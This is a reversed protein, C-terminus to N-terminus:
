KGYHKLSREIQNIAIIEMKNKKYSSNNLASNNTFLNNKTKKDSVPREKLKNKINKLEQFSKVMRNNNNLSNKLNNSKQELLNRYRKIRNMNRTIGNKSSYNVINIIDSNKEFNEQINNSSKNIIQSNGNFSNNKNNQFGLFSKIDSNDKKFSPNNNKVDILHKLSHSHDYKNENLLTLKTYSNKGSLLGQLIMKNLNNRILEIKNFNIMNNTNTSKNLLSFSRYKYDNSLNIKINNENNLNNDYRYSILEEERKILYKNKKSSLHISKNNIDKKNSLIKKAKKSENLIKKNYKNSLYNSNKNEENKLDILLSTTSSKNKYFKERNNLSLDKNDNSITEKNFYSNIKELNNQKIGLLKMYGNNENYSNCKKYKKNIYNLKNESLDYDEDNNKDEKNSLTLINRYHSIEEADVKGEIYQKLRSEKVCYKKGHIKNKEKNENKKLEEIIKKIKEIEQKSKKYYEELKNDLYNDMKNLKEVEEIIKEYIEEKILPKKKLEKNLNEISLKFELVSKNNDLRVEKLREEYLNLTSKIGQESENISKKTYNQSSKMNNSILLKISEITNDIKNKYGKYDLALTKDKFNNLQTINLILYDVFQHFTNFKCNPSTGIINSYYINDNLISDVKYIIEQISKSQTKFKTDYILLIDETNTRFNDLSHVKEILSKDSSILNSLSLIKSTLEEMKVNFNSLEKSFDHNQSEYKLTIESITNKIDKLIEEKFYILDPNMLIRENNM